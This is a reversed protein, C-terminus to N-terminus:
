SSRRDAEIWLRKVIQNGSYLLHIGANDEVCKGGQRVWDLARNGNFEAAGNRGAFADFDGLKSAKRDEEEWCSFSHTEPTAYPFGLAVYLKRGDGAPTYQQTEIQLQRALNQATESALLQQMFEESRKLSLYVNPKGIPSITVYLPIKM